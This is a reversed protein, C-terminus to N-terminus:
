NINRKNMGIGCKPCVFQMGDKKSITDDEILIPVVMSEKCKPCIYKYLTSNVIM